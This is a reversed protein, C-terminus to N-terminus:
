SAMKQWPFDPCLDARSVRGGSLSEIQVARAAPIPRLGSCWQSVTPARVDLLRALDAKSGVIKAAEKIAEIPTM